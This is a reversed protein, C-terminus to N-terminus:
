AINPFIIPLSPRVEIPSLEAHIESFLRKSVDIWFKVQAPPKLTYLWVFKSFADVVFIYKYNRKTSLLPELHDIHYTDLTVEGKAIMNL